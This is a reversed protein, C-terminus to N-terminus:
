VVDFSTTAAESTVEKENDRLQVTVEYSGTSYGRTSFPVYREWDDWGEADTLREARDQLVDVQTGSSDRIVAEFIVNHVGSEHWYDYRVGVAVTEGTSVDEIANNEVDGFEEWESIVEIQQIRPAKSEPEVTIAKETDRYNFRLRGSDEPVVSREWTATEGAPVDLEIDATTDFEVNRNTSFFAQEDVTGATNGTNEFRISVELREGVTVSEPASVEIAEIDAEGSEACGAIAVSTGVVATTKLFRRRDTTDISMTMKECVPDSLDEDFTSGDECGSRESFASGSLADHTTATRKTAWPSLRVLGVGVAKM